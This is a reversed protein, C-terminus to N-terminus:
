IWKKRKFLVIFSVAAAFMCGLVTFYGWHWKLEPMYEFNMGYISTIFTLPIFITGIMTLFKMIENMKTNLNTLYIDHLGYIVDRYTELTYNVQIVHDYLDKLYVKSPEGILGSQERVLTSVIERMPWVAKRLRIFGRRLKHINTLIEPAATRLVNEEVSDVDDGLKEIVAFYNDVVIDILAYALYDAGMKRILTKNYELHHMLPKFVDSEKERFSFVYTKGMVISLQEICVPEDAETLTIVPMEVFVYDDFFDIKPQQETNLIDEVTLPHIGALKGLEEIIHVEHLGDINIWTIAPKDKLPFCESIAAQESIVIDHDDYRVSTIKVKDTKIEGIHVPTEPPLGVSRKHLRKM